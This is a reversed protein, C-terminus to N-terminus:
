GSGDHISLRTVRNGTNKVQEGALSSLVHLINLLILNGILLEEHFEHNCSAM